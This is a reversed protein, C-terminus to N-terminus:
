LTVFLVRSTHHVRSQDFIPSLLGSRVPTAQNINTKLNYLPVIGPSLADAGRSLDVNSHCIRRYSGGASRTM